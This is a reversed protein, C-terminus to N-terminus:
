VTALLDKYIKMLTRANLTPEHTALAHKRARGAMDIAKEPQEFIRDIYYALMYAEDHPYLFVEDPAAMSSIGGVDAAVSPIGLLM